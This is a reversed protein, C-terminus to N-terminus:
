FELQAILLTVGVVRVIYSFYFYSTCPTSVLGLWSVDAHPMFIYMLVKMSRLVSFPPRSHRLAQVPDPQLPIM